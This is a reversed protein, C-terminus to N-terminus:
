NFAYKRRIDEIDSGQKKTNENKHRHLSLRETMDSEKHGLPSLPGHFEGPWFIPTPLRERRRIKGVWSDFGTERM